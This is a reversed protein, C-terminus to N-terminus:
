LVLCDVIWAVKSVERVATGPILAAKVAPRLMPSLRLAGLCMVEVPSYPKLSGNKKSISFVPSQLLVSLLTLGLWASCTIAKILSELRVSFLLLSLLWPRPDGEEKRCPFKTSFKEVRKEKFSSDDQL